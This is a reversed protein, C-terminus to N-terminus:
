KPSILIDMKRGNMKPLNELKGIDTLERAFELLLKEGRDKFAMERGKFTVTCKVRNGKSIFKRAQNLRYDIDNQETNPGFKLEKIITSNEKSKKMLEKKKKKDDFLFKKYDIVKCIIPKSKPNIEVLDMDLSEALKLAETLSYIGNEVNNGVVRVEEIGRIDTNIRHENREERKNRNRNKM